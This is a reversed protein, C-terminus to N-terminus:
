EGPDTEDVERPRTVKGKRGTLAEFLAEAAARLDEDSSSKPRILTLKIDHEKKEPRSESETEENM